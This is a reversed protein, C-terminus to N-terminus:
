GGARTPTLGDLALALMRHGAAARDARGPLGEMAGRAMALLLFVDDTTIDRRLTGAAKADRLPLKL